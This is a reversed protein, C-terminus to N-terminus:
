GEGKGTQSAKECVYHNQPERSQWQFAMRECDKKSTYYGYAGPETHSLTIQGNMVTYALLVFMKM